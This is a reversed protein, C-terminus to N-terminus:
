RAPAAASAATPFPVARDPDEGPEVNSVPQQHLILWPADRGAPLLQLNYQVARRAGAAAVTLRLDPGVHMVHHDGQLLVGTARQVQGPDTFPREDRLQRLLALTEPALAPLLAALVEPTATNLNIVTRRGLSANRVLRAVAAPHDRWLPMRHLEAPSLLWDNRPPALGLRQYDLAEAGNLRRLTDTDIYDELVDVMADATAQQVGAQGLLAIFLPREPANLAVLGREDQLRLIAGNPLRYRRGDARLLPQEAPGLGAPGLPLTALQYLGIQMADHSQLEAQAHDRLGQVQDRLQDIRAAFRAAVFAILALAGLVVVLAVGRAPRAGAGRRM